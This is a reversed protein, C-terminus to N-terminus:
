RNKILPKNQPTAPQKLCRPQQPLRQEAATATDVHNKSFHLNCQFWLKRPSVMLAETEDSSKLQEINIEKEM